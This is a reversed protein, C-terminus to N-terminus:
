RADAFGAPGIDPRSLAMVRFLAGMGRPSSEVLRDAGAAIAEAQDPRAERLKRSREALGLSGLFARQTVPGHVTAGSASAAQALAAFDVHATVDATGPDELCGVPRHDRVAQLTEGIGRRDHGYDIILAALGHGALREALEVTLSLAAPSVELIAGDPSTDDPPHGPLAAQAPPPVEPGAVFRFRGGDDDWDVLRERWAGGVTVLQHIPLADFFENAIVLSSGAPVDALRDAWHPAPAGAAALREAQIRRLVPSTEVLHIDLADRFGPIIGAARWLDAVLTGRGPGLEVLRVPAPRGHRLWLDACWLGILEGFIQSIEPATVFDGARGLPDRTQYYGHRPHGLVTAMWDAVTIPGQTLIRQRLLTALPTM